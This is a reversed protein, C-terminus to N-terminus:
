LYTSFYNLKVECKKYKNPDIKNWLEWEKGKQYLIYCKQTKREYNALIQSMEESAGSSHCTIYLHVCFISLWGPYVVTHSGYSSKKYQFGNKWLTENPSPTKPKLTSDHWTM